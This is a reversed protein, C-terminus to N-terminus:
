ASSSAAIRLSSWFLFSSVFIPTLGVSNENKIKLLLLCFFFPWVSTLDFRFRCKGPRDLQHFQIWHSVATWSDLKVNLLPTSIVSLVARKSETSESKDLFAPCFTAGKEGGLFVSIPRKDLSTESWRESCFRVSTAAWRTTSGFDRGPVGWGGGGGVRRGEAARHGVPRGRHIGGSVVLRKSCLLEDSALLRSHFDARKWM